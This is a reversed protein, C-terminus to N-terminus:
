PKLHQPNPNWTNTIITEPTVTRMLGAVNAWVWVGLGYVM